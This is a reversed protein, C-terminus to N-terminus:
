EPENNRSSKKNPTKDGCKASYNHEPNCVIACYRLPACLKDFLLHQYYKTNCKNMPHLVDHRDFINFFKSADFALAKAASPLHSGYVTGASLNVKSTHFKCTCLRAVEAHLGNLIGLGPGGDHHQVHTARLVRVLHVVIQESNHGIPIHNLQRNLPLKLKFKM